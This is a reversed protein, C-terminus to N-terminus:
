TADQRGEGFLHVTLCAGCCCTWGAESSPYDLRSVPRGNGKTQFHRRFIAKSAM